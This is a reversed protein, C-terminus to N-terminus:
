QPRRTLLVPTEILKGDRMVKVTITDGPQKTRLAYTFDYLNDMKKGDFEVM